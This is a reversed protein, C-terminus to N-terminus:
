AMYFIAKTNDTVVTNESLAHLKPLYEGLCVTKTLFLYFYITDKTKNGLKDIILLAVSLPMSWGVSQATYFRVAVAM